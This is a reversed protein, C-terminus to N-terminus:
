ILVEGKSKKGFPITIASIIGFSTGLFMGGIVDTTWHEGLYIRSVGMLFTIIILGPILFIKLNHHGKFYIYIILFSILFTTRMMHGSPYSYDTAVYHSPFNFDVMGRYFYHTPAPHLLFTKGFLEFIHGFWFLFLTLFTLWYKKSLTFIILILWFIGTIEASGILSLLSFPYDVRRSIHDQLKVTNNFDSQTFREKSVFYSFIVFTLFLVVSILLLFKKKSM